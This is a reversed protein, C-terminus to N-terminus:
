AGGRYSHEPRAGFGTLLEYASVGSATAAEELTITESGDRGIFTAADGIECTTGTVDLMTMDMTVVGAVPVRRGRVIASGSGTFARRYGDAYGIAATAIRSERQARWEGGYSM